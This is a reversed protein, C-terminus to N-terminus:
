IRQRHFFMSSRGDNRCNGCGGANNSAPVGDAKIETIPRMVNTNKIGAALDHTLCRQGVGPGCQSLEEDLKGTGGDGQLGAGVARSILRKRVSRPALTMRALGCLSWAM